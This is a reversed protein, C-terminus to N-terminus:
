SGALRRQILEDLSYRGPGAFLFYTWIAGFLLAKEKGGFPDDAHRIFAAVLMTILGFFAAPRTLLGAAILLGGAFEALAAAWAFFAPVPFGMGATAEIFGDSVPIKGLGHGFAFALGAFVRLVLQGLSAWPSGYVHNGFLVTALTRM